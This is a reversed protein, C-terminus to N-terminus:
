EGLFRAERRSRLYLLTSLLNVGPFVALTAWYVPGGDWDSHTRLYWGDRYTFLPLLVTSVLLFVVLLLSGGALAWGALSGAAALASAVVGYRDRGSGRPSTEPVYLRYRGDVAEVLVEHGYLRALREPPVELAVLLRGLATDTDPEGDAPWDLYVPVTRDVDLEVTLALARDGGVEVPYSEPVEGAPVLGADVLTGSRVTGEPIAASTHESLESELALFREAAAEEDPRSRQDDTARSARETARSDDPDAPASGEVTVETEDPDSM